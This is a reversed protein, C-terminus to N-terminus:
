HSTAPRVSDILANWLALKETEHDAKTEIRLVLRPRVGSNAEGPFVWGFQMECQEPPKGTEKIILEEGTLGAIKRRSDQKVVKSDSGGSGLRAMEVKYKGIPGSKEPEATTESQLIFRIGFGDFFAEMHEEERFPLTVAGEALYFWDAGPAPWPEKADRAHYANGIEVISAALDDKRENLGWRSLSLGLRGADRLANWVILNKSDEYYCVAEFRPAVTRKEVIDGAVSRPRLAQQSIRKARIAEIKALQAEWEREFAKDRPPTWTKEELAVDNMSYRGGREMTRPIDACFRGACTPVTEGWPKPKPEMTAEKGSARTCALVAAFVLAARATVIVGVRAPDEAPV